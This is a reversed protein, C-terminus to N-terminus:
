EEKEKRNGKNWPRKADSTENWNHTEERDSVKSQQGM